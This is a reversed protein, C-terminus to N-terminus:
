EDKHPFCCCGYTPLFSRRGMMKVACTQSAALGRWRMNFLELEWFTESKPFALMVGLGNPAM